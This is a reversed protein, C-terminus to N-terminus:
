QDEDRDALYRINRWFKLLTGTALKILEPSKNISYSVQVVVMIKLQDKEYFILAYLIARDM